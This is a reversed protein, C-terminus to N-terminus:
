GDQGTSRTVMWGEAPDALEFAEHYDRQSKEVWVATRQHRKTPGFRISKRAYKRAASFDQKAVKAIALNHMAATSLPNWRLATRWEREAEQWRGTAAFRNGRHVHSSGLLWIPQDLRVRDRRISPSLLPLTERVMAIELATQKDSVLGLDPYKEIASELTIVLPIGMQQQAPSAASKTNGDASSTLQGQSAAEDIPTLCWSVALRESANAIPVPGPQPLVEGRLLYKIGQQKALPILSVDSPVSEQHAVLAIPGTPSEAQSQEQLRDISILDFRRGADRPVADLLREELSAVVQPPGVIESLLVSQDVASDLVPPVWRHVPATVRCGVCATFCAILLIKRFTTTMGMMRNRYAIRLLNTLIPWRRM